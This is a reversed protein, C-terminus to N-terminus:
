REYTANVVSLGDGRNGQKMVTAAVLKVGTDEICRVNGVMKERKVEVTPGEQSSYEGSM